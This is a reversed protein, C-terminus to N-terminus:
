SAFPDRAPPPASLGGLSLATVSVAGQEVIERDSAGTATRHVDGTYHHHYAGDEGRAFLRGTRNELLPAWRVPTEPGLGRPFNVSLLMAGAPLGTTLLRAVMAAARTVAADVMAEVEAGGLEGRTHWARYVEPAVLQSFAVAPLGELAAELAGGITGSNIALTYGVNWGMNIGSIVWHPPDPFLEHVALNVCDAPTGDVSYAACGLGDVVEVRVACARTVSKGQWGQERTPIALRVRGLRGLAAALPRLMPSDWGDDNVLLLTPREAGTM